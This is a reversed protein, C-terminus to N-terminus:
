ASAWREQVSCSCLLKCRWRARLTAALYCAALCQVGDGAPLNFSRVAERVQSPMMSM